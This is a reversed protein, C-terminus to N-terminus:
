CHNVTRHVSLSEKNEGQFDCLICLNDSFSKKAKTEQQDVMEFGGRKLAEIAETESMDLIVGDKFRKLYVTSM